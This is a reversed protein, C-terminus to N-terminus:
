TDGLKYNYQGFTAKVVTSGGLDWAIGVRPVFRNFRQVDIQRFTEAPYLMPFDRAAERSQEPLYSHQREWRVGLNVTLANTVRWTDKLYWADTDANDRPVVPTNYIRIRAPTGSVGNIRDTYLIYNGALNNSYGDSRRDRYVMVGTKLEHRGGLFNEPFFSLSGEF